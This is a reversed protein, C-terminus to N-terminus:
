ILLLLWLIKSKLFISDDYLIYVYLLILGVWVRFPYKISSVMIDHNADDREENLRAYLEEKTIM